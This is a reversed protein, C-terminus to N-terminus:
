LAALVKPSRRAKIEKRTWWWRFREDGLFTVVTVDRPSDKKIAVAISNHVYKMLGGPRRGCCKGREAVRILVARIEDDSMEVGCYQLMKKRYQEVAHNTVGIRM